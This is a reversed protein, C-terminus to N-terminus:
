RTVAAVTIGKFYFNSSMVEKSLVRGKSQFGFDNCYGVFGQLIKNRGGDRCKVVEWSARKERNVSM